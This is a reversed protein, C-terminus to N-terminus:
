NPYQTGFYYFYYFYWLVAQENNNKQKVIPGFINHTIMEMQECDHVVVSDWKNGKIASIVCKCLM